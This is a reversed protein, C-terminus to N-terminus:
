VPSMEKPIDKANLAKAWLFRVVSIVRRYYVGSACNGNQSSFDVESCPLAHRSGLSDHLQVTSSGLSACLFGIVEMVATKSGNTV